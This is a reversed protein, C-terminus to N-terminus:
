RVVVPLASIRADLADRESELRRRESDLEDLRKHHAQLETNLRIREADREQVLAVCADLAAQPSEATTEIRESGLTKRGIDLTWEWQPPTLCHNYTVQVHSTESNSRVLIATAHFGAPKQDRYVPKIQYSINTIQM